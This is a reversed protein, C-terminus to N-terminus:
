IKLEITASYLLHHIEIRTCIGDRYFYENFNGDPFHVLYHGHGARQIDLFEQFNDSYVKGIAVPERTYMSLLNYRIPGSLMYETKRGKRIEYSSGERITLKNAKERGNLERYLRSRTLIDNEFVSEEEARAVFLFLMRTSVDSRLRLVTKNNGSVQTFKISGVLEGKRSICYDLTDGQAIAINALLLLPVLLVNRLMGSTSVAFRELHGSIQKGYKRVLLYILAWIM